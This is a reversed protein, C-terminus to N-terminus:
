HGYLKTEFATIIEKHIQSISNAKFSEQQMKAIEYCSRSELLAFIDEYRQTVSREPISFTPPNEKSIEV